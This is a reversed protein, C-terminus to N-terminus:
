FDDDRNDGLGDGVDPEWSIVFITLGTKVLVMVLMIVIIWIMKEVEDNYNDLSACIVWIMILLLFIALMKLDPIYGVNYGGEFRDM